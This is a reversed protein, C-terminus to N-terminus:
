IFYKLLIFYYHRGVMGIKESNFGSVFMYNIAQHVHDSSSTCDLGTNNHSGQQQAGQVRLCGYLVKISLTIIRFM